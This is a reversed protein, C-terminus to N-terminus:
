RGPLNARSPATAKSKEDAIRHRWKARESPKPHNWADTYKKPCGERKQWDLPTSLGTADLQKCYREGTAGTSAAIKQIAQQKTAVVVSRPRGRENKRQFRESQTGQTQTKIRRAGLADGSVCVEASTALDYRTQSPGQNVSRTSGALAATLRRPPLKVRRKILEVRELDLYARLVDIEKAPPFPGQMEKWDINHEYPVDPFEAELRQLRKLKTQFDRKLLPTSIREFPYPDWNADASAALSVDPQTQSLSRRYLRLGRGALDDSPVGPLFWAPTTPYSEPSLPPPRRLKRSPTKKSM